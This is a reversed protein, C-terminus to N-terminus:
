KGILTHARDVHLHVDVHLKKTMLIFQALANNALYQGYVGNLPGFIDPVNKRATLFVVQHALLVQVTAM